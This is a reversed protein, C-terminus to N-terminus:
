HKWRRRGVRNKFSDVGSRSTKTHEMIYLFIVFHSSYVMLSITIKSRVSGDISDFSLKELPLVGVIKKHEFM